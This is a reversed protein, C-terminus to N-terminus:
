NQTFKSVENKRFHQREKTVKILDDKYEVFKGNAQATRAEEEALKQLLATEKDEMKITMMEINKQLSQVEDQHISREQMNNEKLGLMEETLDKVMQQFAKCSEKLEENESKTSTGLKQASALRELLEKIQAKDSGQKEEWELNTEKLKAETEQYLAKEQALKNQLTTEKEQAQITVMNLQTKLANMEKHHASREEEVITKVRLIEKALNVTMAQFAKRSEKLIENEFKTSHLLTKMDTSIKTLEEIQNKYSSERNEHDTNMKKTTQESAKRESNLKEESEQRLMKEQALKQQLFGESQQLRKATMKLSTKIIEAETELDKVKNELNIKLGRNM